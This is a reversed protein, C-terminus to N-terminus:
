FSFVLRPTIVPCDRNARLGGPHHLFQFDQVLAIHKNFPIKYYSEVVFESRLDFGAEPESSFRVWTAALGISDQSRRQLPGQLIAGGGVHHTFGSVRGEAWGLQLFTSVRREGHDQAFPQQWVSQEVVSYFGQTGSTRSDDFRAITGDLRWYGLSVRGPHEVKGVSWSRGPEIISLANSGAADFVGLGLSYGSKVRVFATLGPRPEPYTPFTVITPSFGMSSNLFDGANQVVAFETNADIKGAKIRLGDSMLRQEFWIEYLTTRSGADINSYLQAAGDYTEGFINIHHKLRVMASSGSLGLLKKGDIPVLLDFSYRGFGSGSDQDAHLTKSWDYIVVGQPAIGHENLDHLLQRPTIASESSKKDTNAAPSFPESTQAFCHYSFELILGL